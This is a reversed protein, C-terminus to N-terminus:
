RRNAPAPIPTWTPLNPMVDFGVNFQPESPAEVQMKQEQAAVCARTNDGLKQFDGAAPLSQLFCGDFFTYHDSEGCGFSPRDRRAATLVIRNDGKVDLLFVGSYCASLVIVSPRKDCTDNIIKGLVQPSLIGQGVLIGTPAGHSTFYILCGGAAKQTLKYLEDGITQPVSAQLNEKPYKEPQVSFQRINDAPIGLKVFAATLDRRGNDFVESPAGSHAHNDGAVVVAVWDSFTAARVPSAIVCLFAVFRFLKQLSM